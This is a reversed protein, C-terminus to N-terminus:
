KRQKPKPPPEVPDLRRLAEVDQRRVLKLRRDLPSTKVALQETKIMELVRGRTVGLLKAAQTVTLLGEDAILKLLDPNIAMHPLTTNAFM